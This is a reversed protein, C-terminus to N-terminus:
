LNFSIWTENKYIGSRLLAELIMKIFHEKGLGIAFVM